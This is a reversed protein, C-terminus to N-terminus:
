RQRVQLRVSGIDPDATAGNNEYGREWTIKKTVRTLNLQVEAAICTLNVVPM